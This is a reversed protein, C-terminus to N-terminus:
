KNGPEVWGASWLQRPLWWSYPAPSLNIITVMMWKDAPEVWGAPWVIQVIYTNPQASMHRGDVLNLM